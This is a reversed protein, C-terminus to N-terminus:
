TFGKFNFSPNQNVFQSFSLGIEMVLALEMKEVNEFGSFSAYDDISLTDGFKKILFYLYRVRYSQILEDFYKDYYDKILLNLGERNVCTEAELVDLSFGKILFRQEVEIINVIWKQMKSKEVESICSEDM